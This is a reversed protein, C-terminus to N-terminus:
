FPSGVSDRKSAYQRRPRRTRKWRGQGNLRTALVNAVHKVLFAFRTQDLTALQPPRTPLSNAAPRMWPRSQGCARANPVRGRSSSSRSSASGRERPSGADGDDSPSAPRSIRPESAASVSAAANARRNNTTGNGAPVGAAASNRQAETARRPQRIAAPIEAPRRPTWTMRTAARERGEQRPRLRRRQATHATKPTERQPYQGARKERLNKRLRKANLADTPM